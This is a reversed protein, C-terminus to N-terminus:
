EFLEKMLKKVKEELELLISRQRRTQKKKYFHGGMIYGPVSKPARKTLLVSLAGLAYTQITKLKGEKRVRRLSLVFLTERLIRLSIGLENIRRSLDQDEGFSLGEDYGGARTFIDRHVLSLPGPALPRHTIISVEIMLNAFLTVMADGSLESDPRFWTTFFSPPKEDTNTIFATVRSFCYPLLVSDADVFVLWEGRGLRAGRNRQMPLSARDCVIVRISLKKKFSEAVIVTRDKSKGDVVIVEFDKYTQEVLSQLLNPLFKEENLTPIIVSFRPFKM